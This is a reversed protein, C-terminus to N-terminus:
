RQAEVVPAVDREVDTFYIGRETRQFVVHDLPPLAEAIAPVNHLDGHHVWISEEFWPTIWGTSINFFSDYVILTRGPV